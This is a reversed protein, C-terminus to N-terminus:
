KKYQRLNSQLSKRGISHGYEFIKSQDANLGFAPFYPGSLSRILVSKM